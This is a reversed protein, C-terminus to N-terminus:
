HSSDCVTCTTVGTSTGDDACTTCGTIVNGCIDCGSQDTKAYYNVPPTSSDPGCM